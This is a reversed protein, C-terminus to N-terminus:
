GLQWCGNFGQSTSELHITTEIDELANIITDSIGSQSAVTATGIWFSHGQTDQLIGAQKNRFRCHVKLTDATEMPYLFFPKRRDELQSLKRLCTGGM